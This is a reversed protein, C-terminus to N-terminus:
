GVRVAGPESGAVPQYLSSDSHHVGCVTYYTHTLLNLVVLMVGYLATALGPVKDPPLTWAMLVRVAADVILGVGWIVSSVRWMRRFRPAREWVDDWDGPWRLRGQLVPRTFLYVLPREARVSAIFWVGTVGTLVAEKALLFRTAGPILSIVLAGLMMATFYGSLGDFRRERVLTVLGPAASVVTSVLLSGYVPVGAARLVYYLVTPLALGVGVRAAVRGARRMTASDRIASDRTM